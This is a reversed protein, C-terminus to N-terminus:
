GRGERREPKKGPALHARIEQTGRCRGDRAVRGLRERGLGGRRVNRGALRLAERVAEINGALPPREEMRLREVRQDAFRERGVRAELRRLCREALGLLVYNRLLAGEKRAHRGVGRGRALLNGPGGEADRAGRGGEAKRRRGEVYGIREVNEAADPPLGLQELRLLFILAELELRAIEGEGRVHHDGGHGLGREAGLDRRGLVDDVDLRPLEVHQLLLELQPAGGLGCHQRLM